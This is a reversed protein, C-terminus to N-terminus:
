CLQSEHTVCSACTHLFALSILLRDMPTTRAPPKTVIDRNCFISASKEGFFTPVAFFNTIIRLSNSDLCTEAGVNIINILNWDWFRLSLVVVLCGILFRQVLPPFLFEMWSTLPVFTFYCELNYLFIKSNLDPGPKENPTPM